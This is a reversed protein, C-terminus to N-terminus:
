KLSLEVERGDDFLSGLICGWVLFGDGSECM